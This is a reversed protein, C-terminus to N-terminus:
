QENGVITQNLQLLTANMSLMTDKIWQIDESSVQTAENKAKTVAM